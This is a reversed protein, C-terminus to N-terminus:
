WSRRDIISRHDFRTSILSVPASAVRELEEIFQITEDTLQEFRRAHTNSAHIYDAFTLAIDTPGNLMVARRFLDWEFEGVRRRRGSTSGIEIQRLKREENGSRKAITRWNLDQSMPGSTRKKSPSKVRIPYTRCVMIVRRIHSPAIGAESLCGAVATDRSTVHPYSGHHLSLGTGQTGEVFIKEGERFAKELVWRSEGVFPKLEPIDKALRVQRGDAGRMVKRATAAGVGRGTSGISGVLTKGEYKIDRANIVMAHPDICLRQQSVKCDAIEKLLDGVDLVAGPGIMLQANSRRTGSPLQHHIYPKPDEYVKHGANPGGVRVLLDYEPALYASIHGKGESGYEGGILVDVLRLHERGFLRLHAAARIVVDHAVCRDTKIVADAVSALLGIRNETKNSSVEAYSKFERFGKLRQKRKYREKLVNVEAELHMHFVIPGYAKRIARVQESTRVSDVVVIAKNDLGEVVRTLSRSVWEGNTRRDLLDGYNQHAGREPEIKTGAATAILEKTKLVHAGFREVLGKSLTSKGASVRGSLLVIQRAM